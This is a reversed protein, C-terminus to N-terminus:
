RGGNVGRWTSIGASGTVIPAITPGSAKMSTRVEGVVLLHLCELQDGLDGRCELLANPRWM